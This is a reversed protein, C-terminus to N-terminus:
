RSMSILESNFGVSMIPLGLGGIAGGLLIRSANLGGVWFGILGGISFGAISVGYVGDVIIGSIGIIIIGVGVICDQYVRM